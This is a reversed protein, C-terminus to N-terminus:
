IYCSNCVALNYYFKRNTRKCFHTKWFIDWTYEVKRLEAALELEKTVNDKNDEHTDIKHEFVVVQGKRDIKPIDGGKSITSRVRSSVQFGMNAIWSFVSPEYIGECLQLWLVDDGPLRNSRKEKEIRRREEEDIDDLIWELQSPGDDEEDYYRDLMFEVQISKCMNHCSLLWAMEQSNNQNMDVVSYIKSPRITDNTNSVKYALAAVPDRKNLMRYERDTALEINARTLLRNERDTKLAKRLDKATWFRRLGLETTRERMRKWFQVGLFKEQLLTFVKFMPYLLTPFDKNIALLRKKSVIKQKQMQSYMMVDDTEIDKLKDLVQLLIDPDEPLPEGYVAKAVDYLTKGGRLAVVVCLQDLLEDHDCSAFCCFTRIFNPFSLNLAKYKREWITSSTTSASENSSDSDEDSSDGIDKDKRESKLTLFKTEAEDLKPDLFSHFLMDIFVTRRVNFYLVIERITVRDPMTSSLREFIIFARRLEHSSFNMDLAIRSAMIIHTKSLAGKHIEELTELHKRFTVVEKRYEKIYLKKEKPTLNKPISPPMIKNEKNKRNSKKSDVEDVKSSSSGMIARELFSFSFYLGQHTYKLILRTINWDTCFHTEVHM